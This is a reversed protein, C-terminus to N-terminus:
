RTRSAEIAEEFRASPRGQRVRSDTWGSLLSYKLSKPNRKKLLEARKERLWHINHHALVKGGPSEPHRKLHSLWKEARKKWEVSWLGAKKSLVKAARGRRCMFSNINEYPNRTIAVLTSMMNNQLQDLDKEIAKQPPWRSWVHAISNTVCSNFLRIQKDTGVKSAGKSAPNAWFARWATRAVAEFEAIISCDASVLHGLVPMHECLQWRASTDIDETSGKPLMILASGSKATLKWESELTSIM